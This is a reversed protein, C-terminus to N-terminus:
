REPDDVAELALNAERLLELGREDESLLVPRAFILYGTHAVMRDTPRFREPEAKYYRLLVECVDLFAFGERRLASLTLIVQNTTPLITGFFGGPKLAARVQPMFDYPNPLDLFLADAGSDDFGNAIDQHHFTVREALGVRELNSRALAHMEARAEYTSVRGHEGVAYAFATTLAGSGTGAEVVHTGAGIGMTVLIYGIEKPYLIQTNRKIERLLSALSPPMIFFPSGNHSFIQTGWPKAIIDDHKIVGRHSQLEGGSKVRLLFHKHRL